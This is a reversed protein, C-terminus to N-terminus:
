PPESDKRRHRNKLLSRVVYIAAVIFAAPLLIVCLQTLLTMTV